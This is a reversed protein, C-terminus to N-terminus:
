DGTRFVAKGPVRRARLEEAVTAIETWSKEVGIVPRVSGDAVLSVLLALDPAFLDPLALDPALLDPAPATLDQPFALEGTSSRESASGDVPIADPPSGGDGGAGGVCGAALLPIALALRMLPSKLM